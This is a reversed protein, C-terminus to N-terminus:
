RAEIALVSFVSQLCGRRQRPVFSSHIRTVHSINRLRLGDFPEKIAYYKTEPTLGEEHAHSQTCVKLISAHYEQCPTNMRIFHMRHLYGELFRLHWVFVIFIIRFFFFYGSSSELANVMMASLLFIANSIQFGLFFISFSAVRLQVMRPIFLHPESTEPMLRGTLPKMVFEDLIFTATLLFRKDKNKIM